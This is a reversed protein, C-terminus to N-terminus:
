EHLEHMLKHKLEEVSPHVQPDEHRDLFVKRNLEIETELHHLMRIIYAIGVFVVVFGITIYIRLVTAVWM